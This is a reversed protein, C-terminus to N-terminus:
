IAFFDYCHNAMLGLLNGRDDAGRSTSLTTCCGCRPLRGHWALRAGACNPLAFIAGPRAPAVRGSIRVSVNREMITQAGRRPVGGDGYQGRHDTIGTAVSADRRLDSLETCASQPPIPLEGILLAVDRILELM